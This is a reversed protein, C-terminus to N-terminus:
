PFHESNYRETTLLALLFIRHGSCLCHGNCVVGIGCVDCAALSEQQGLVLILEGRARLLPGM